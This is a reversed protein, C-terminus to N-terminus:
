VPNVQLNCSSRSIFWTSIVESSLSLLHFSALVGLLALAQKRATVQVCICQQRSVAAAASIEPHHIAQNTSVGHQCRHQM